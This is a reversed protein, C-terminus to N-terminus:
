MSDYSSSKGDPQALIYEVAKDVTGLMLNQMSWSLKMKDCVVTSLMQRRIRSRLASNRYGIDSGTRNWRSGLFSVEEIAMVVEVTDL